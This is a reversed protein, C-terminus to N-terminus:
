NLNNLSSYIRDTGQATIIVTQMSREIANAALCMYMGSGTQQVGIAVEQGRFPQWRRTRLVAARSNFRYSYLQGVDETLPFALQTTVHEIVEFGSGAGGETPDDVM